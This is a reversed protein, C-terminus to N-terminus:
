ILAVLVPKDMPGHQAAGPFPAPYRVPSLGTHVTTVALRLISVGCGSPNATVDRQVGEGARIWVPQLVRVHVCSCLSTHRV